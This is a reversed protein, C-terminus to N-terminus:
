GAASGAANLLRSGLETLLHQVQKGRRYTAVLGALRLATAHSSATPAGVGLRLALETTSCGTGIAALAQSRARGLLGILPKAEAGTRRETREETVPYRLVTLEGHTLVAPHPAVASPVILAGATAHRPPRPRAAAGNRAAPGAGSRATALYLVEDEYSIHEHLTDLLHGVGHRALVHARYAVDGELARRVEPWRDALWVDFARRLADLLEAVHPSPVPAPPGAPAAPEEAASPDGHVDACMRASLAELERELDPSSTVDFLAPSLLAATPWRTARLADSLRRLEADRSGDRRSGGAYQAVEALLENLPSIVFRTRSLATGDMVVVPRGIGSAGRPARTRTPTPTPTPTPTGITPAPGAIDM